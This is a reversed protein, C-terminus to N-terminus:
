SRDQKGTDLVLSALASIAKGKKIVQVPMIVKVAIANGNTDIAPEFKWNKVQEQLQSAFTMKEVDSYSSLPKALRVSEPQGKTNVTFKVKLTLGVFQSKVSPIPNHTPEPLSAIDEITYTPLDFRASKSTDENAAFSALPASIIAIAIITNKLTHKM